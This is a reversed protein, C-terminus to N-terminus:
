ASRKGKQKAAKKSGTERETAPIQSLKEKVTKEWAAKEALKQLLDGGTGPLKTELDAEISMTSAGNVGLARFSVRANGSSLFNPKSYVADRYVLPDDDEDSDDIANAIHKFALTITVVSKDGKRRFKVSPPEVESIITETTNLLIRAAPRAM